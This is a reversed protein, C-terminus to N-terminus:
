FYPHAFRGRVYCAVRFFISCISLWLKRMCLARGAVFRINGGIIFDRAIIGAYARVILELSIQHIMPAAALWDDIVGQILANGGCFPVGRLMDAGRTDDESCCVNYLSQGCGHPYFASNNPGM